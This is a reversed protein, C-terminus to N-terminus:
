SESAGRSGIQVGLHERAQCCAYRDTHYLQVCFDATSAINTQYLEEAAQDFRDLIAGALDFSTALQERTEPAPEASGYNNM